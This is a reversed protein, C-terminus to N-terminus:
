KRWSTPWDSLFSRVSSCLPPRRVHMPRAQLWLPFPSSFLILSSADLKSRVRDYFTFFFFILLFVAVKAQGNVNSPFRDLNNISCPSEKCSDTTCIFHFVMTFIAARLRLSEPDKNKSNNRGNTIAANPRDTAARKLATIELRVTLSLLCFSGPFVLM